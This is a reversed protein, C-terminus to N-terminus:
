DHFAHPNELMYFTALCRSSVDRVNKERKGLRNDLFVNVDVGRCIEFYMHVGVQQDMVRLECAVEQLQIRAPGMKALKPLWNFLHHCNDRILQTHEKSMVTQLVVAVRWAKWCPSPFRTRGYAPDMVSGATMSAPECSPANTKSAVDMQSSSCGESSSWSSTSMTLVYKSPLLFREHSQAGLSMFDTREKQMPQSLFLDCSGLLVNTNERESVGDGGDDGVHTSVKM